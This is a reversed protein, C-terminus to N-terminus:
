EFTELRYEPDLHKAFIIGVYSLFLSMGVPLCVFLKEDKLSAIKVTFKMTPQYLIKYDGFFLNIGRKEINGIGGLFAQDSEAILSVVVEFENSKTMFNELTVVMDWRKRSKEAENKNLLKEKAEKIYSHVFSRIGGMKAGVKIAVRIGPM